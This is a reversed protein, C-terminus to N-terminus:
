GQLEWRAGSLTDEVTLGAAEELAERPYFVSSRYHPAALYYRLEVPRVRKVMESVLLVNGPSKGMKQEGLSVLGNHLWYRAAKM